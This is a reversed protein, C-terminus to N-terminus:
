EQIGEEAWVSKQKGEEVFYKVKQWKKSTSFSKHSSMVSVINALPVFHAWLDLQSNAALLSLINYLLFNGGSM